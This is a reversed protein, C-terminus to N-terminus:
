ISNGDALAVAEVALDESLLRRLGPMRLVETRVPQDSIPSPMAVESEISLGPPPAQEGFSVAIRAGFIESLKSEATSPLMQEDTAPQM